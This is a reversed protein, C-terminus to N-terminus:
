RSLKNESKGRLLIVGKERLKECTDIVKLNEEGRDIMDGCVILLDMEPNYEAKKLLSLFRKQHGHLDSIALIRDVTRM